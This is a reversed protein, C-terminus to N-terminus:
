SKKSNVRPIGIMLGASLMTAKRAMDKKWCTLFSQTTEAANEFTTM